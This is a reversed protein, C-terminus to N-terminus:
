NEIKETKIAKANMNKNFLVGTKRYKRLILKATSLKINLKKSTKTLSDSKGIVLDILLQRKQISYPRVKLSIKSYKKHPHDEEEHRSM